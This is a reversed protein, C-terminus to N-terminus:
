CRPHIGGHVDDPPVIPLSSVPPPPLILDCVCDGKEPRPLAHLINGVLRVFRDFAHFPPTADIARFVPCGEVWEFTSHNVIKFCALM